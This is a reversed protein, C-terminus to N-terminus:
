PQRHEKLRDRDAALKRVADELRRTEEADVLMRPPMAAVVRPEPGRVKELVLQLREDGAQTQAVLMVAILALAAAGGWGAFRAFTGLNQRRLWALISRLTKISALTKAAAPDVKAVM